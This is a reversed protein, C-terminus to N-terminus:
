ENTPNLSENLEEAYKEMEMDWLADIDKKADDLWFISVENYPVTTYYGDETFGVTERNWVVVTYTFSSYSTTGDSYIAQTFPIFPLSAPIALFVVLCLIGVIWLLATKLKKM